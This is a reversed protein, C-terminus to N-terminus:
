LVVKLGIYRALAQRGQAVNGTLPQGYAQLLTNTDNASLTKLDGLTQPFVQPYNGTNDVLPTLDKSDFYVSRNALREISRTEMNQMNQHINQQMTEMTQQMTQQIDQMVTTFWLPASELQTPAIKSSIVKHEYEHAESVDQVTPRLLDHSETMKRIKQSYEVADVVDQSTVNASDTIAPPLDVLKQINQSQNPPPIPNTQKQQQMEREPKENRKGFQDRTFISGVVSLEFQNLLYRTFQRGSQGFLILSDMAPWWFVRQAVM